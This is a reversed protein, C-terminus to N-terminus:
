QGPGSSYHHVIRRDEFFDFSIEKVWEAGPVSVLKAVEFPMAALQFTQGIFVPSM